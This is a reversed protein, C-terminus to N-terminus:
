AEEFEAPLWSVRAASSRTFEMALWHTRHDIGRTGYKSALLDLTDPSVQRTFGVTRLGAPDIEGCRMTPTSFPYPGSREVALSISRQELEKRLQPFGAWEFHAAVVVHRCVGADLAIRFEDLNMASRRLILFDVLSGVRIHEILKTTQRSTPQASGLFIPPSGPVSSWHIVCSELEATRKVSSIGGLIQRSPILSAGALPIATALLQRRTMAM